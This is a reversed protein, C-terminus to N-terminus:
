VVLTTLYKKVVQIVDHVRMEYIDRLRRQVIFNSVFGAHDIMDDEMALIDMDVQIYVMDKGEANKDAFLILNSYDDIAEGMIMMKKYQGYRVIEDMYDNAGGNTPLISIVQEEDEWNTYFFIEFEEEEPEGLFNYLGKVFKRIEMECRIFYFTQGNYEYINKQVNVRPILRSNLYTLDYPFPFELPNNDDFWSTKISCSIMECYKKRHIGEMFVRNNLIMQYFHFRNREKDTDYLEETKCLINEDYYKRCTDDYDFIKQVLELPLSFLRNRVPVVPQKSPNTKPNTKTASEAKAPEGTYSYIPHTPHFVFDNNQSFSFSFAFNM